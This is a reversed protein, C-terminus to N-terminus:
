RIDINITEVLQKLKNGQLYQCEIKGAKNEELVYATLEDDPFNNEVFADICEKSHTSLFVQVNFEKAVEQIFETFKVLLNKHLASDIEDICLIGNKCYGLLLAIEFVRQLGEGYKTIDIAKEVSSSSVRFRNEGEDNVLDIKEITDDLHLRIFDIVKDFYKNEIALKHATHLLKENYRYPSTFASQCLIQSKSYRLEPEKNSFLHISSILNEKGVFAEAVLTDLYGSKDIDEETAEKKILLGSEVSNFTAQLDISSIFNKDVWKAQFNGLFKGRFRELELYAPLYNLQSLLYFAELISTKGKNNGGAFINVRSINNVDVDILKRYRTIHAQSFHSTIETFHSAAKKENAFILAKSIPLLDEIKEKSQTLEEYDSATILDRFSYALQTANKISDLANRLKAEGVLQSFAYGESISRSEEMMKVAKDDNIFNAIEGIQRYNSIIPEKIKTEKREESFEDDETRSIWSFLRQLNADNYAFYEEDDWGIWEKLIPSGTISQFIYFKDSEFQDGYDSAKYQRILYLTRLSRRLAYTKIGLKDCVENESLNYKEILDAILQSENVASWRKKGGIHHLGMTILHQVPDEDTIEVLNIAQFDSETLKGVDNGKKFEDYLYKLTATRRNGELVLYKDGVAKVQIQDIDLFGNSTFSSILDKVNEQNKGLIFNLARTQIRPDAVQDDPVPKYDARDIFRYNNPDLLLTDLHRKIRNSAM